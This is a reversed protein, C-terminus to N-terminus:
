NDDNEITDVEEINVLRGTLVTRANEFEYSCTSLSIFRDNGSYSMGSSVVARDYIHPIWESIPSNGNYLRDDSRVISCAFFDIRYVTEPTSLWGYRHAEFFSETTYSTIQAFMSGNKMNHGYLINVPNMFRNECRCDLFVSGAKLRSRDFDHHLYYENDEGPMVPYSIRTNPIYLWGIANPYASNLSQASDKLNQRIEDPLVAAATDEVVSTVAEPPASELATTAETMLYSSIVDLEHQIEPTPRYPSIDSDAKKQAIDDKFFIFCGGVLLAASVAAVITVKAKKTM